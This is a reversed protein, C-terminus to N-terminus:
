RRVEGCEGGSEVGQDSRRLHRASVAARNEGAEERRAEANGIRARSKERVVAGDREGTGRRAADHRGFTFVGSGARADLIGDLAAANEVEGRPIDARLLVSKGAGGGDSGRLAAGIADSVSKSRRHLGSRFAHHNRRLGGAYFDACGDAHVGPRGHLEAGGAGGRRSDAFNGGAAPYSDVFAARGASFGCRARETSHSVATLGASKAGSGGRQRAVRVRGARAGGGRSKRDCDREIGADAGEGGRVGGPKGKAFYSGARNGDWRSFDPVAIEGIRAPQLAM